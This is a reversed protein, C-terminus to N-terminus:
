FFSTRYDTKKLRLYQHLPRKAKSAIAFSTKGNFNGKRPEERGNEEDSGSPTPRTSHSTVAVSDSAFLRLIMLKKPCLLKAVGESM